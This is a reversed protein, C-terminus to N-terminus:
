TKYTLAELDNPIKKRKLIIGLLTSFTFICQNESKKRQKQILADDEHKRSDTYNCFYWFFM